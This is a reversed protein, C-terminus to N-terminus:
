KIIGGAKLTFDMNQEPFDYFLYTSRYIKDKDLQKIELHVHVSQCTQGSKHLNLTQVKGISFM